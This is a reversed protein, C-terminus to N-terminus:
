KKAYIHIFILFWKIFLFALVIGFWEIKPHFFWVWIILLLLTIIALVILIKFTRDFIM